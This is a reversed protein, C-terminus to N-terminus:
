HSTLPFFPIHFGLFVQSIRGSVVPWVPGVSVVAATVAALLQPAVCSKRVIHFHRHFECGQSRPLFTHTGKIRHSYSGSINVLATHSSFPHSIDTKIESWHLHHSLSIAALLGGVHHVAEVEGVGDRRLDIINVLYSGTALICPQAFFIGAHKFKGARKRGVSRPLWHVAWWGHSPVHTM